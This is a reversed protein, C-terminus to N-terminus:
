VGEAALAAELARLDGDDNYAQVSVRVFRQGGHTTVPVEIRHREFLRRRLAEPDDTRVAIPVMQAFHDDPAIPALGNRALVRHMLAVAGAHCRARSRSLSPM